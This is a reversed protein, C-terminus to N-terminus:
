NSKQQAIKRINIISCLVKQSATNKLCGSKGDRDAVPLWGPDSDLELSVIDTKTTLPAAVPLSSNESNAVEQYVANSSAQSISLMAVGLVLAAISAKISLVNDM